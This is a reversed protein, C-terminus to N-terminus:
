WRNGKLKLIASFAADYFEFTSTDSTKILHQYHKTIQDIGSGSKVGLVEHAEWEHANFVFYVVEKQNKPTVDRLKTQPKAQQTSKPTSLLKAQTNPEFASQSSPPQDLVFTPKQDMPRIPTSAAESDNHTTQNENKSTDTQSKLNLTTNQKHKLRGLLFFIVLVTFIIFNIILLQQSNVTFENHFSSEIKYLVDLKSLSM